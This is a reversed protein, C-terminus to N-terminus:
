IERGGRQKYDITVGSQEDNLMTLEEIWRSINQSHYVVHEENSASNKREDIFADIEEITGEFNDNLHDNKLMKISSQLELFTGEGTGEKKKMNELITRAQNLPKDHRM